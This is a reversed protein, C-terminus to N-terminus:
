PSGLIIVSSLPPGQIHKATLYGGRGESMLTSWKAVPYIILKFSQNGGSLVWKVLRATRVWGNVLCKVQVMGSAVHHGIHGAARRETAM